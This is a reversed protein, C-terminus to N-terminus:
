DSFPVEYIMYRKHWGPSMCHIFGVSREFAM